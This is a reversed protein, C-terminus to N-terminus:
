RFNPSNDVFGEGVPMKTLLSLFGQFWWQMVIEKLNFVCTSGNLASFTYQTHWHLILTLISYIARSILFGIETFICMFEGHEWTGHLYMTCLPRCCAACVASEMDGYASVPTPPTSELELCKNVQEPDQNPIYFWIQDTKNVTWMKKEIMFAPLSQREKGESHTAGPLWLLNDTCLVATVNQCFM